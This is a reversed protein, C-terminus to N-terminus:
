EGMATDLNLMLASKTADLEVIILLSRL